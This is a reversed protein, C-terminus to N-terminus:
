ESGPAPSGIAQQLQCLTEHQPLRDEVALRALETKLATEGQGMAWRHNAAFVPKLLWSLHRLIPKNAKVRWDYTVDVFEGDQRFEWIGTGLFDGWADLTFGNPYTADTVRFWWRLVYPLRGKTLLEVVKGVGLEDGSLLTRTELYVSPWWRPLDSEDSLINYVEERTARIRWRTVFHYDNSAM